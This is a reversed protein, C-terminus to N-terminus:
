TPTTKYASSISSKLWWQNTLRRGLSRWCSRTLFATSKILEPCKTNKMVEWVTMSGTQIWINWSLIFTHSLCMAWVRGEKSWYNGQTRQSREMRERWLVSHKATSIKRWARSLRSCSHWLQLSKITWWLGVTLVKSVQVRIWIRNRRKIRLNNM